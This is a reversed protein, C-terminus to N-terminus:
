LVLQNEKDKEFEEKLSRAEEIKSVRNKLFFIRHLFITKLSEKKKREKEEKKLAEGLRRQREKEEKELGQM